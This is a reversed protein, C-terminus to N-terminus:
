YLLLQNLFADKARIEYDDNSLDQHGYKYVLLQSWYYLDKKNDKRNCTNYYECHRNLAKQWRISNEELTENKPPVNSFPNRIQAYDEKMKILDQPNLNPNTILRTTLESMKRHNQSPDYRIFGNSLEELIDNMRLDLIYKYVIDEVEEPLITLDLSM